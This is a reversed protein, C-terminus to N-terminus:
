GSPRDQEVLRLRELERTPPIGTKADWGWESYYDQVMRETEPRSLPAGTLYEKFGTEGFWQEPASEDQGPKCGECLNAIRYLTWVRDVRERLAALDTPIGTM